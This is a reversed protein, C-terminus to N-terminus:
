CSFNIINRGDEGKSFPESASTLPPAENYAAKVQSQNPKTPTPPKNPLPPPEYIDEVEGESLEGEELENDGIAGEDDDDDHEITPLRYISDLGGPLHQTASTPGPPISSQQPVVRGKQQLQTDVPQSVGFGLGPILNRNQNYAHLSMQDPTSQGHVGQYSPNQYPTYSYTGVPLVPTPLSFGNPAGNTYPYGHQSM